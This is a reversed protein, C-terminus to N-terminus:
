GLAYGQLRSLHYGVGCAHSAAGALPVIPSGELLSATPVDWLLDASRCAPNLECKAFGQRGPDIVECWYKPGPDDGRCM